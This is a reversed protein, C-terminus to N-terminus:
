PTPSPLSPADPLPADPLRRSPRRCAARGRLRAVRPARATTHPQPQGRVCRGFISALLIFQFIRGFSVAPNRFVLRSQRGVLLAMHHLSSHVHPVGYQAKDAASALAVGGTLTAAGTVGQAAAHAAWATSLAERTLLKPMPAGPETLDQATFQPSVAVSLAFDAPDM